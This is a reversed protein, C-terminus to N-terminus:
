KDSPSSAGQMVGELLALGRAWPNTGMCTASQTEARLAGIDLQELDLDGFKALCHALNSADRELRWAHERLTSRTGMCKTQSAELRIAFAQELRLRYFDGIRTPAVETGAEYRPHPTESSATTGISNKM